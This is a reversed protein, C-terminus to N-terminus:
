IRTALDAPGASIKGVGDFQDDACTVETHLVGSCRQLYYLIVLLDMMRM